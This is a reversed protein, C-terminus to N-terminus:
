KRKLWKEGHEMYIHNLEHELVEDLTETLNSRVIIVWGKTTVIAYASILESPILEGYEQIRTDHICPSKILREHFRLFEKEEVISAKVEPFPKDSFQSNWIQKLRYESIEKLPKFSFKDEEMEVM